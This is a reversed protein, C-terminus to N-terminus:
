RPSAGPLMVDIAAYGKTLMETAAGIVRPHSKFGLGEVRRSMFNALAAVFAAHVVGEEGWGADVVEQVDHATVRSPELM